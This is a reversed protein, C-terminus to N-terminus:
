ESPFKFRSAIAATREARTGGMNGQGKKAPDVKGGAGNKAGSGSQGSGKLIQDKNPYAEVINEIAEDFEAVEGPKSRSYIKNGAHDYGVIKGEEVKFRDGFRAQVLDAPIALKEGVYKSGAFAGAVKEGNYTTLLKGFDEDKKQLEAAHSKNIETIKDELAKTAAKKINDVEGADVLKKDDLNKVTEIAKLAAAPDAIDKFAELKKEAAEKAERHGQAEKNLATIKSHMAPPDLVLEKGDDAVYVPRGENLVAHGQDDVKLKM